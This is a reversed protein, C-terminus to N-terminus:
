APPGATLRVTQTHTEGTSDTWTVTVRDGPAQTDLASRLADPSAVARGGVATITDGNRIGASAAASGTQVGVVTAGASGSSSIEVGLVARAGIHVATSSTGTQIQRAIAMAKTIPIAYGEVDGFRRSGVSAATNIGVVRGNTDVLPGGSDGPQLQANTQILGVLPESDGYGEGVHIDQDLATVAGTAVAHPGSAGLANGIAIVAAGVALTTSAVTIPKMGSPPDDLQIVALDDTVDYGV